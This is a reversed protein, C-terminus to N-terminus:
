QGSVVQTGREAATGRQQLERGFVAGGAAGGRPDEGLHRSVDIPDRVDLDVRLRPEVQHSPEAHPPRGRCEHETGVSLDGVAHVAQRSLRVHDRGQGSGGVSHPDVAIFMSGLPGRNPAHIVVATSTITSTVLLTQSSAAWVTTKAIPAMKPSRHAGYPRM